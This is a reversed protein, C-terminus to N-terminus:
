IIKLQLFYLSSHLTEKVADEKSGLLFGISMLGLRKESPDFYVPMWGKEGQEIVGDEMNFMKPLSPGCLDLDLVGVKYGKSHLAFALQACVTSKGVGGKGSLVVLLKKCCTAKSSAGLDM